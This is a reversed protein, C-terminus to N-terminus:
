MTMQLIVNLAFGALAATGVQKAREPQPNYQVIWYIFGVIPIFFGLVLLWAPAKTSKM